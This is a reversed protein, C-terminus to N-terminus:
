SYLKERPKRLPQKLRLSYKLRPAKEV